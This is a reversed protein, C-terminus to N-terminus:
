HPLVAKLISTLRKKYLLLYMKKGQSREGIQSSVEYKSPWIWNGIEILTHKVTDYSFFQYDLFDWYKRFGKISQYEWLTNNAKFPFMKVDDLHPFQQYVISLTRIMRKLTQHSEALKIFQDFDIENSDKYIVQIIDMFYKMSDLNHRWGHLCIMYFTHLHSLEKIYGSKSVPISQKWLDNINFRSTSRKVLDWHLEVVLPTPSTPLRKSFSCHFHGPIQEEEFTFGLSKVSEIAINLDQIRVLLDIDSTARAGMHGFYKEAFYVGKLAIVDIKKEEFGRLLQDTQNKIFLNQYFGKDYEEKLRFQFFAPTQYLRGQQKLLFYVQSAIGDNEIDQLAQHYFVADQPLSKQNDYLFRVFEISM